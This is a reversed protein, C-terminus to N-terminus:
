LFAGLMVQPIQVAFSVLVRAALTPGGPRPDFLMSWFLIGDVAMSWNMVDYLCPDLMARFHVAPVLWLFILGVFLVSAPVPHQM